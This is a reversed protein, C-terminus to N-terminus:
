ELVTSMQDVRFSSRPNHSKRLPYTANLQTKRRCWRQLSRLQAFDTASFQVLQVVADRRITHRAYICPLRFITMCVYFGAIARAQSHAKNDHHHGQGQHHSRKKAPHFGYLRAPLCFAPLCICVLWVLDSTVSRPLLQCQEVTYLWDHKYGHRSTPGYDASVDFRM